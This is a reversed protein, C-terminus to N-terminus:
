NRNVDDIVEEQNPTRVRGIEPGRLPVEAAM